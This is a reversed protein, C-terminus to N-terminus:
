RSDDYTVKEVALGASETDALRDDQFFVEGLKPSHVVKSADDRRM